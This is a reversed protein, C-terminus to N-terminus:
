FSTEKNQRWIRNPKVLSLYPIVLSIDTPLANWVSELTWKHLILGPTRCPYNTGIKLDFHPESDSVGM